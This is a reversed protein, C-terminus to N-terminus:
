RSCTLFPLMFEKHNVTISQYEPPQTLFRQLAKSQAQVTIIDGEDDEVEWSAYGAVVLDPEDAKSLIQLGTEAAKYLLGKEARDQITGCIKAADTDCHGLGKMELTCAEINEWRAFVM